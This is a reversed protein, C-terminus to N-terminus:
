ELFSFRFPISCTFFFALLSSNVVTLLQLATGRIFLLFHAEHITWGKCLLSSYKNVSVLERSSLQGPLKSDRAIKSICTSSHSLPSVGEPFSCMAASLDQFLFCHIWPMSSTLYNITVDEHLQNSCHRCQFSPSLHYVDDPCVFHRICSVGELWIQELRIWWQSISHGATIWLLRFVFM